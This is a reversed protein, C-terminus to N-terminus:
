SEKTRTGYARAGKWATVHASPADDSVVTVHGLKRGPRWSKGYDHVFIGPVDLAAALSSPQESGVVNVMVAHPTTTAVDGLPQGSVARLHNAFQSTRAGEITWHGSNHPRLAVENIVLGKDTVFLEVALVGVVDILTALRTGLERAQVLVDSSVDAPYRVEVCMGDSQVTTVLPYLALAGDVGRVVLQAVESQLDLREEIVVDGHVCTEAIMVLTEDRDSPFLVGRGDYGGRAAKVVPLGALEDLFPTIRPDRSSSVVLFRPVPLGAAALEERQYAKDVAFRLAAASPRVTVGRSELAAVHDLDVLEHDFTVVDVEQSLRDLAAQDHADGLIVDDCTAVAADDSSSALVTIRVGAERSAEGMMRALQGAGVVGVRLPASPSTHTSM